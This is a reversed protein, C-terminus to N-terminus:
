NRVRGTRYNQWKVAQWSHVEALLADLFQECLRFRCHHFEFAIKNLLFLLYIFIIVSVVLIDQWEPCSSLEIM